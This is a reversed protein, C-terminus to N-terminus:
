FHKIRMRKLESELPPVVLGPANPLAVLGDKIALIPGCLETRLANKNVDLECRSQDGVLAAGTLAAVQGVASGMFHPWLVVDDPLAKHLVLLGSLGGWKALDPQVVTMGARVMQKFDDLGYINEGGAIAISTREALAVWDSLPANAPLPEEVFITGFESLAEMLEVATELNWSQNADVAFSAGSPLLNAAKRAFAIDREAGFGLKIKFFNEGLGSHRLIMKECDAPNMSSAYVRVRTNQVGFFQAASIGKARLFLDWLAMDLGALLHEFVRIQGIHLFYVSLKKRLFAVAEAPAGYTGGVLAPAIVDEVLHAKHLNARPPFNAWVEGWGAVAQCDSVRLLLAPREPMVGLAMEPSIGENNRLPLVDIRAIKLSSLNMM